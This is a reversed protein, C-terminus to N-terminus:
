FQQQRKKLFQIVQTRSPPRKNEPIENLWLVLERPTRFVRTKPFVTQIIEMAADSEAPMRAIRSLMAHKGQQDQYELYTVFDGDALACGERYLRKAVASEPTNEERHALLRNRLGPWYEIRYIMAFEKRCFHIVTSEPVEFIKEPIGDSDLDAFILSGGSERARRLLLVIQFLLVLVILILIPIVPHEPMAGGQKQYERYFVSGAVAMLGLTLAGLLISLTDIHKKM